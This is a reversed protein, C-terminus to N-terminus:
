APGPPGSGPRPVFIRLQGEALPRGDSLTARCAFAFLGGSRGGPKAEVLVTEDHPVHPAAFDIRPVGTLFGLGLPEGRAQLELAGHVGACQAMWEIAIWAPIRADPGRFLHARAALAECVTSEPTHDLIRELLRMAGAHPLLTELRPFSSV